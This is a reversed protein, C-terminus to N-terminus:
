ALGQPRNGRLKHWLASAIAGFFALAMLWVWFMPNPSWPRPYQPDTPDTPGGPHRRAEELLRLYRNWFEIRGELAKIEAQLAAIRRELERQEGIRQALRHWRVRLADEENRAQQREALTGAVQTRALNLQEQLAAGDTEIDKSREALRADYGDFAAAQRAYADAGPRVRVRREVADVFLHGPTASTVVDGDRGEVGSGDSNPDAAITGDALRRSIAEPGLEATRTSEQYWGARGRRTELTVQEVGGHFRSLTRIRAAELDEAAHTVERQLAQRGLHIDKGDDNAETNLGKNWLGQGPRLASETYVKDPFQSPDYFRDVPDPLLNLVDVGGLVSRFFGHHETAGGETKYMYARGLYHHQRPDRGAFESPIGAIGRPIELAINGWNFPLYSWHKSKWLASQAGELREILYNEGLLVPLGDAEYQSFRVKTLAEDGDAGVVDGGARYSKLTWTKFAADVQDDNTYSRVLRGDKDVVAALLSGSVSHVVPGGGAVKVDKAREPGRAVPASVNVLAYQSDLGLTMDASRHLTWSGSRTLTLEADRVTKDANITRAHALKFKASAETFAKAAADM